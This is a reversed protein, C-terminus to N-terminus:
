KISKSQHKKLQQACYTGVCFAPWWRYIVHPYGAVANFIAPGPCLGGIGWGVGFIASGVILNLDLTQNTPVGFKGCSKKQSLPSSLTSKHKIINFRDVFQYSIWSVVVGGGMVTILTPDYTGNRLGKADLFGYIKSSNIMGSIALGVSFLAGSVAAPLLKRQNNIEEDQSTDKPSEPKPTGRMWMPIAAGLALYLMVYGIGASNSNPLSDSLTDSGARLYKCFISKEDCFTASLLGSTMFSAVAVFSRKSLRALGCIGHGSTCGNGLRTGFGVLLGAITYGLPSVITAMSDNEPVASGEIAAFNVYLKTFLFFSSVFSVKWHNATNTLTERPSLIFSSLIGSAGLIDGNFLLLIAASSGILSGGILGSVPTYGM